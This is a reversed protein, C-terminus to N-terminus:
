LSEILREYQSRANTLQCEASEVRRVLDKFDFCQLLPKRIDFLFPHLSVSYVGAIVKIVGKEIFDSNEMALSALVKQVEAEEVKRVEIAENLSTCEKAKSPEKADFLKKYLQLLSDIKASGNIAYEIAAKINEIRYFVQEAEISTLRNLEIGKYHLYVHFLTAQPKKGHKPTNEYSIVISFEYDLEITINRSAAARGVCSLSKGNVEDQLLSCLREREPNAAQPYRKIFKDYITKM